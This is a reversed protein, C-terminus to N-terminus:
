LFISKTPFGSGAILYRRHKQLSFTMKCCLYFRFAYEGIVSNRKVPFKHCGERLHRYTCFSRLGKWDHMMDSRVVQVQVNVKIKVELAKHTVQSGEVIKGIEQGLFIYKGYSLSQSKNLRHSRRACGERRHVSLHLSRAERHIVKDKHISM